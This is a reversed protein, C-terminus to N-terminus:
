EGGIEEAGNTHLRAGACIMSGVVVTRAEVVVADHYHRRSPVKGTLQIQMTMM